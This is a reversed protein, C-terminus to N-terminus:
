IKAIAAQVKLFAARVADGIPGGTTTNLVAVLITIVIALLIGYEVASQGKQSKLVLNRM